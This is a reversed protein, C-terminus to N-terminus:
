QKTVTVAIRAESTHDKATAVLTASGEQAGSVAYIGATDTAVILAASGEVSWQV